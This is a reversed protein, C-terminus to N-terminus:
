VRAGHVVRSYIDRGLSDTGFLHGSAPPLLRDSLIQEFQSHTALLPAVVAVGILAVIIITGVVMLKNRRWLIFSDKLYRTRAERRRRRAAARDLTETRGQGNTGSM